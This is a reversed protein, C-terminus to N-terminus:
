YQNKDSATQVKLVSQISTCLGDIYRMFNRVRETAVKKQILDEDVELLDFAPSKKTGEKILADFAKAKSTRYEYEADAVKDVLRILLGRILLLNQALVAPPAPVTMGGEKVFLGNSYVTLREIIQETDM